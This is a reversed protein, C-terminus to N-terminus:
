ACLVEDAPVVSWKDARAGFIIERESESLNTPNDVVCSCTLGGPRGLRVNNVHVKNEGTAVIQCLEGDQKDRVFAGVGMKVYYSSIPRGYVKARDWADAYVLAKKMEAETLANYDEVQVLSSWRTGRKVNFLGIQDAPEAVALLYTNGDIDIQTGIGLM